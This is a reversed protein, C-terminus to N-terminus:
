KRFHMYWPYRTFERFGLRKYLPEGFRSAQLIVAPSGRKLAENTVAVVCAEALGRGRAPELTGVWYIGAISHSFTIMACSVPRDDMYAAVIYNYPKLMREPSQFIRKGVESPMGLSQYSETVVSAFDEAGALDNIERIIVNGPNNKEPLVSDIMMGPAESIKIMNASVCLSELGSDMHSRVHISYSRKKESFFADLKTMMHEYSKETKNGICIATNTVPSSGAGAVMLIDGSEIIQSSANWRAMERHFEAFNLDALYILDNKNMATDNRINNGGV